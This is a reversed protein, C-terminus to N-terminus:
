CDQEHAHTEYNQDNAENGGRRGVRQKRRLKQQGGDIERPVIRGTDIASDAFIRCSLPRAISCGVKMKNQKTLERERLVRRMQESNRDVAAAEDDEWSDAVADRTAM